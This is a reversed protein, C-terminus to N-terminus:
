RDVKDVERRNNDFHKQLLFIGRNQHHRVYSVSRNLMYAIDKVTHKTGYHLNLIKTTDGPLTKLAKQIAEPTQTKQMAEWFARRTKPSTILM